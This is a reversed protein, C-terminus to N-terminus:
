ALCKVADRLFEACGAEKEDYYMRFREDCVYMEAVGRHAEKTYKKWTMSLWEKHLSVIEEAERGDPRCGTKVAKELRRKIDEELNKFRKYEAESMNLLKQDCAKAEEEGYKKRVEEGYKKKNEKVLNEKFAEFKELDSMEREGKMQLITQNVTRILSDVHERQKTLALLHSKLADMIDFDKQYIMQKIEKLDFGREKYFLIQQLLLVEEEGYFRYGAENVYLPKLLSIEDYYRLTRARVGAITSLEHISYIKM